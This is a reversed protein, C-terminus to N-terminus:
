SALTVVDPLQGSRGRKQALCQVLRDWGDIPM